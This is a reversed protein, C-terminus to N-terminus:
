ISDWKCPDSCSSGFFIWTRAIRM